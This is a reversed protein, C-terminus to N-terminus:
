RHSHDQTPDALEGRHAIMRALVAPPLLRPHALHHRATSGGQQDHLAPEDPLSQLCVGPAPEGAAEAVLERTAPTLRQRTQRTAEKTRERLHTRADMAHLRRGTM